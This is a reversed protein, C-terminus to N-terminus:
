KNESLNVALINAQIEDMGLYNSLVPKFAIDVKRGEKLLPHSTQRWLMGTIMKNYEDLFVVKLHANKLIYLKSVELDKCLVTPSPNSIGFPSFLELENIVDKTIEGIKVETDAYVKYTTDIYKFKRECYQNFAVAFVKINERKISFGGAMEHGGFKELYSSLTELCEIVSFNEVGRISGKFVGAKDLGLVISPKYYMEVLRQAVIGIIGTHFDPHYVCIGSPIYDLNEIQKIAGKKVQEEIKQRESNLKELKQAIKKARKEDKTTLLESVIEGSLMRGAANLRPGISFSVDYTSVRKTIGISNKLAVLGVRKTYNLFELGKKAIVRNASFLPVMDCITGISALDLFEKPDLVDKFGKEELKNKLVIIFYWVLGATCLEYKSFGCGKQKPNVFVDAKPDNNGVHHHDILVIKLGLNKAYLIEKQNTTGYDLSLLLSAGDKKAEDIMRNNLGYGENFRDPVYVKSKVDLADLFSKIQASSTLGDVDFDSCIAIIENAIIADKILNAAENLGIMNKPNPLGTKLTPNLFNDLEENAEFGRAALVNSTITSLNFKESIKKAVDEKQEKLIIKRKPAALLVM